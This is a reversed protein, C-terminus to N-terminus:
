NVKVQYYHHNLEKYAEDIGSNDPKNAESKKMKQYEVSTIKFRLPGVSSTWKNPAAKYHNVLFHDILTISQTSQGNLKLAM